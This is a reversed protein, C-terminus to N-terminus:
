SAPLPTVFSGSHARVSADPDLMRLDHGPSAAAKSTEGRIDSLCIGLSSMLPCFPSTMYSSRVVLVRCSPRPRGPSTAPGCTGPRARRGPASAGGGGVGEFWFSSQLALSAGGRGRRRARPASPSGWTAPWTARSTPWARHARANLTSTSSPSLSSPCPYSVPLPVPPSPFPSTRPRPPWPPPCLPLAGSRFLQSGVGAGRGTSSPPPAFTQSKNTDHARGRPM